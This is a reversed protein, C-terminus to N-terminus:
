KLMIFFFYISVRDHITAGILRYTCNANPPMTHRPSHILGWRRNSGDFTYSCRGNDEGVEAHLMEFRVSVDIEVRSNTLHQYPASRIMVLVESGSSVIEPLAGSGCFELLQSSRSTPGDFIRVSDGSICDTSLLFSTGSTSTPRGTPVSIKYDNTQSLVIRAM